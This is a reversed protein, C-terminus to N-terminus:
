VSSSWGKRPRWSGGFIGSAVHGRTLLEGGVLAQWAPRRRGGGGIWGRWTNTKLVVPHRPTTEDILVAAEVQREQWKTGEKKCDEGEAIAEYRKLTIKTKHTSSPLVVSANGVKQSTILLKSASETLLPQFRFLTVLSAVKVNTYVTQPDQGWGVLHDTSKKLKMGM